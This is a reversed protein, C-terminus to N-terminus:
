DEQARRAATRVQCISAESIPVGLQARVQALFQDTRYTWFARVNAEAALEAALEPRPGLATEADPDAQWWWHSRNDDIILVNPM